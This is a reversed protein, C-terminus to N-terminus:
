PHQSMPEAALARSALDARRIPEPIRYLCVDKVLHVATQLSIRHGQSIFIPSKGEVSLATGLEKCYEDELPLERYRAPNLRTWAFAKQISRNTDTAPPGLSKAVGITPLDLLVGLHSALGFGRPHLIGNGDVFLVHPWYAPAERKLRDFLPLLCPVERFALFGNIYPETLKVRECHKYVVELLPYSLVVLAAVADVESNRVFSLDVGAVCHFYADRITGMPSVSFTLDHDELILRDRLRIQENIWEAKKAEDM